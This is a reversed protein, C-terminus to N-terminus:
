RERGWLKTTLERRLSQRDKAEIPIMKRAYNEIYEDLSSVERAPNGVVVTRPAVSKTVVSGAGVVSDPGIEIDPLLIAGAGIFSNNRIRITGFRNGFRSMTPFQDRFLRSGGDHNLFRVGTAVTVDDGIEILWPETGFDNITNYISCRQGIWMGLSRLYATKDARYLVLFSIRWRQMWIKRLM